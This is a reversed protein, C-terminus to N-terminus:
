PPLLHVGLFGRGSWPRPVLILNEMNLEGGGDGVRNRMVVVPLEKGLNSNVEEVLGGLGKPHEMNIAGLRVVLDGVALGAEKAPSDDSVQNVRAIPIMPVASAGVNALGELSSTSITQRQTSSTARTEDTPGSPEVTVAQAQHLRHLANELNAM